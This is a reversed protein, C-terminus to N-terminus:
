YSSKPGLRLQQVAVGILFVFAIGALTPITAGSDACDKSGKLLSELVKAFPWENEILYNAGAICQVDTAPGIILYLHRGVFLIGIVFFIISLVPLIGLRSDTLLSVIGVLVGFFMSYRQTLCLSCPELNFVHELALTLALAGGGCFVLAVAWTDSHKINLGFKM